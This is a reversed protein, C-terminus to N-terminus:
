VSAEAGTEEEWEEEEPIRRWLAVEFGEEGKLVSECRELLRGVAREFARWTERRKLAMRYARTAKDKEFWKTLWAAKAREREIIVTENAIDARMDALRSLHLAYYERIKHRPAHTLQNEYAVIQEGPRLDSILVPEESILQLNEDYTPQYCKMPVYKDPELEWPKSDSGKTSAM